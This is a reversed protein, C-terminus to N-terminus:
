NVFASELLLGDQHKNQMKELLKSSEKLHELAADLIIMDEAQLHKLPLLSIIVSLGLFGNDIDKFNQKVAKLESEKFTKKM